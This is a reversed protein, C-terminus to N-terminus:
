AILSTFALTTYSQAGAKGACCPVDGLRRDAPINGTAPGAFTCEAGGRAGSVSREGTGDDCDREHLQIPAAAWFLYLHRWDEPMRFANATRRCGRWCCYAIAHQVKGEDTMAQGKAVEASYPLPLFTASTGRPEQQGAQQGAM